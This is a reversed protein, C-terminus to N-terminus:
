AALNVAPAAPRAEGHAELQGEVFAMYKDMAAEALGAVRRAEPMDGGRAAKRAANHLREIEAEMTECTMAFVMM